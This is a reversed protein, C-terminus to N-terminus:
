LAKTAKPSHFNQYMLYCFEYFNKAASKPDKRVIFEHLQKPKYKTIFQPVSENNNVRQSYILNEKELVDKNEKLFQNLKNKKTKYVKLSEGLTYSQVTKSRLLHEFDVEQGLADTSIKIVALISDTNFFEKFKEFILDLNNKYDDLSTLRDFQNQYDVLAKFLAPGTSSSRLNERAASNIFRDYLRNRDQDEDKAPNYEAFDGFSNLLQGTSLCFNFVDEEKLQIYFNPLLIQGLSFFKLITPIFIWAYNIPIIEQEFIKYLLYQGDPALEVLLDIISKDNKSIKYGDYKKTFTYDFPNYVPYVFGGWHSVLFVTRDEEDTYKYVKYPNELHQFNLFATLQSNTYEIPHAWKTIEYPKHDPVEILEKITEGIKFYPLFAAHREETLYALNM